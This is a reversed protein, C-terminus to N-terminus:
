RQAASSRLPPNPSIGVEYRVLTRGRTLILLTLPPTRTLNHLVGIRSRKTSTKWVCSSRINQSKRESNRLSVSIALYYFDAQIVHLHYSMSNPCIIVSCFICGVAKESFQKPHLPFPFAVLPWELSFFIIFSRLTENNWPWQELKQGYM